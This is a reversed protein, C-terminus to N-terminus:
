EPVHEITVDDFWATTNGGSWVGARRGDTLGRDRARLVGIGDIAGRIEDGDHIITMVHWADPDLNIDKVQDLMVRNGETVRFVGASHDAYVVAM